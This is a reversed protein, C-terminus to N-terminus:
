IKIVKGSHEDIGCKIKYFYIGPSVDFPVQIEGEKYEYKYNSVSRGNSDFIMIEVPLMKINSINNFTLNESTPNTKLQFETKNDFTSRSSTEDDDDGKFNPCNNGQKYYYSDTTLADSCGDNYTLNLKYCKCDSNTSFLLFSGLTFPNSAAQTASNLLVDDGDSTNCKTEWLQYSISVGNPNQVSHGTLSLQNIFIGPAPSVATPLLQGYPSTPPVFSIANPAFGANSYPSYSFKGDVEIYVSKRANTTCTSAGNCCSLIFELMYSEGANTGSSFLSTLDVNGSMTGAAFTMQQILITGDTSKLNITLCLGSNTPISLGPLNLVVPDGPCILLKTRSNINNLPGSYVRGLCHTVGGTSGELPYNGLTVGNISPNRALTQFLRATCGTMKCIEWNGANLCISRNKCGKGTGICARGDSGISVVTELPLKGDGLDCYVTVTGGPLNIPLGTCDDVFTICDCGIEPVNQGYSNIAFFYSLVFFTIKILNRM